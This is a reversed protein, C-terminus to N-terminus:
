LKKFVEAFMPVLLRNGFESLHDDDYYLPRGGKNGYCRGDHCLYPLPDLIKVGCLDRAADQAAWVWANRKRYADMSISLEDAVGFAMRRSLTRPVDFGMEPIPRVLYVTRRKALECASSTIHSAFEDLFQPTSAVYIKSFYVGPADFENQEENAGFALSAYRAIVVIPISAPLVSERFEVSAIFEACKYDAGQTSPLQKLGPLFPCNSYTWQVVGANGNPQAQALSSVLASAHSDGVAIVKWDVGGYVCSPFMLGKGRHCEALRPNSNSSEAAAIEVEPSFRGAVGKQAWVAFAPILVLAVVGTLMVPAYRFQLQELLRRSRNEIQSYSFDAMFLTLLMAGLVALYDGSLDLYVLAVHVPWHWLYLSYSRDGLWQALKNGTWPSNRNALLVLMSAVVPLMARWGPWKAHKDLLGIAAFILLLGITELTRRQAASLRHTSGLLFVLGGSLMEWARTHLLFFAATRDNGTVLISAGLSLTLGILIAWKQAARGPKLRWVIWLVVPLALYFQWEISLSWTHLLWKDHSAVDFYGAELWFEINSLFTLSYITHSGLMKYDPPMLVFWGVGLLVACLAVLAPVIRRARAMYFGILSFNGQELGKVVIGTMLFGSIVFFVDVGVFGGGFGTVGFHYLIVAVVAWARLGNIDRRFDSRACAKSTM